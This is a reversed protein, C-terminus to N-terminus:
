GATVTSPSGMNWIEQLREMILDGFRDLEPKVLKTIEAKKDPGTRARGRFALYGMLWKPGGMTVKVQKDTATIVASRLLQDRLTGSWVLPLQNHKKKAKRLMYAKSRAQYGYLSAGKITFHGPLIEEHWLKGFEAGAAIIQKKADKQLQKPAIPIQMTWKIM